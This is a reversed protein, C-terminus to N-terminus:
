GVKKTWSPNAASAIYQKEWLQMDGNPYKSYPIQTWPIMQDMGVPADSSMVFEYASKTTWDITIALNAPDWQQAKDSPRSITLKGYRAYERGNSEVWYLSPDVFGVNETVIRQWKQLRQEWLFRDSKAFSAPDKKYQNYETLTLEWMKPASASKSKLLWNVMNIIIGWEIKSKQDGANWDDVRSIQKLPIDRFPATTGNFFESDVYGGYTDQFYKLRNNAASEQINAPLDDFKKNYWLWKINEQFNGDPLAAILTEWSRFYLNGKISEWVWESLPVWGVSSIFAIREPDLRM